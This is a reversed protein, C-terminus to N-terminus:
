APAPFWSPFTALLQPDGEIHFLGAALAQGGDLEGRVVRLWVGDPTHVVLDPAPATGEFSECRGDGIRLWYDGPETGSVRFQITARAAGAARRDFAMPMGMIYPEVRDPLAVPFLKLYLPPFWKGATMGVLVVLLNPYLATFRPDHPAYACLGASVLFLAVWFYCMVMGIRGTVPLKLQWRPVQRRMFHATFPEFGLMPPIAATLGLTLFVLAPSYAQYLAVVPGLGTVAALTGVAFMLWVGFDFQKLEGLAWAAAIYASHMGLTVLLATRLGHPANGVAALVAFYVVFTVLPGLYMFFFRGLRRAFNM